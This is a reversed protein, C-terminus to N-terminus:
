PRWGQYSAVVRGAGRWQQRYVESVPDLDAGWLWDIGIGNRGRDKGSSHIYAGEGMHIGVHTARPGLGFFVLDGPQLETQPVPAVFDEQQYADRPLWVGLSSFAWQVLGSCDYDPGLTGGWLYTNPRAMAQRVRELVQPILAQIDDPKWFRPHYSDGVPLLALTDGRALWGCYGDEWLCVRPTAGSELVELCRGREAQTALRDCAPSDYISLGTNVQYTGPSLPTM